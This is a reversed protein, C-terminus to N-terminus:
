SESSLDLPGKRQQCNSLSIALLMEMKKEKYKKLGWKQIRRRKSSIHFNQRPNKLGLEQIYVEKQQEQYDKYQSAGGKLLEYKAWSTWLYVTIRHEHSSLRVTKLHVSKSVFNTQIKRKGKSGSYAKLHGPVLDQVIGKPPDPFLLSYIKTGQNKVNFKKVTSQRVNVHVIYRNHIENANVKTIRKIIRVKKVLTYSAAQNTLLEM